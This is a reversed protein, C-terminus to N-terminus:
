TAWELSRALARVTHWVCSHAHVASCQVYVGGRVVVVRSATHKTNSDDPCQWQQRRAFVARQRADSSRGRIHVFKVLVDCGPDRIDVVKALLAQVVDQDDVQQAGTQLVQEVVAVPLERDLSYDHDGLLHNPCGDSNSREFALLACSDLTCVM